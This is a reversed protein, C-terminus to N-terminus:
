SHNTRMELKLCPKARSILGYSHWASLIIWECCRQDHIHSKPCSDNWGIWRTQLHNQPTAPFVQDPLFCATFCRVMLHFCRWFRAPARCDHINLYKTNLHMKFWVNQCTKSSRSMCSLQKTEQIVQLGCSIEVQLLTRATSPYLNEQPVNLSMRNLTDKCTRLWTCMIYVVCSCIRVRGYPVTAQVMHILAAIRAYKHICWYYAMGRM